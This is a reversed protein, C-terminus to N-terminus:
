PSPPAAVSSTGSGTGSRTTTPAATGSASWPSSLRACRTVRQRLLTTFYDESVRADHRMARVLFRVEDPALSGVATGQAQLWTRYIRDSRLREALRLRLLPGLPGDAPRAFPFVAGLYVALLDRGAAELRRAVEVALAGGPGCHGYVILPGTVRGLVEAVVDAAVDAIPAPEDALGIDHGPVAVSLLRYGAPLADALPQYVVASGGGYPVCLLTAVRDAAPVPPTLEHLLGARGADPGGVLDALERVTRHRFLDMVSVPPPTGDVVAPLERRLRAVVRTALLSHGGLDFFDDTVGVEPVGLVARWVDAVLREVPGVPPVREGTPGDDTPEPLARRDVKGHEQLPLRDLVVWRTPVMHEPLRGALLHRWRAPDPGDPDPEAELYAVLRDDRLLM